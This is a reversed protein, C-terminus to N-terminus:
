PSNKVSHETFQSPWLCFGDHHKCTLILLRAGGAKLARAWQDADFETPHFLAPDEKGDGWERDTFTNIGFHAFAIIELRQWAAQERSPRPGADNAAATAAPAIATLLLASLLGTLQRKHANM